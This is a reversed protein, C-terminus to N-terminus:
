RIEARFYQKLHETLDATLATQKQVVTMKVETM